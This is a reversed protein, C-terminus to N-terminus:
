RLIQMRLSHADRASTAAKAAGAKVAGAKVAGAKVASFGVGPL